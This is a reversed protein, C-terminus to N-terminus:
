IKGSKTIECQANRKQVKLLEDEVSLVWNLRVPCKIADLFPPKQNVNVFFIRELHCSRKKLATLTVPNDPSLGNPNVLDNETYLFFIPM